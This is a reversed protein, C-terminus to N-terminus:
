YSVFLMPLKFLILFVYNVKCLCSCRNISKLSKKKQAVYIDPSGM